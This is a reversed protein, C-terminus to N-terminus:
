PSERLAAKQIKGAPTLPLEDRFVIQRPVKYDALHAACWQRVQAEDLASGARRVIYYRGIEGMVPDPVGIGAVMVVDPHRAIHGEIEAPYVNFGGQIYMDKARGKLEIVGRDNVRGLDGTKLWGDAFANSAESAAGVYGPIVGAGSFCLEGIEGVPLDAGTDPAIVKVRANGIPRGITHLRDNDSADWPTMVIAGSTESLGYLNMLTAAPCRRELQSLLAADVNAGGIYIIRVTSLDLDLGESHMLLLTMMTPVGGLLTPPYRRMRELVPKAKFEAILDTRGGSLLMSLVGCTIGGVHNLPVPIQLLDSPGLRMHEAQASASALMSAHTLGAGKPRGTTGSTYIVMATADPSTQQGLMAVRPDPEAALLESFATHPLRSIKAAPIDEGSTADACELTILHRLSPCDPAIRDLMAAFETGEYHPLVAIAKIHSDQVMYALEADRYRLSMGVVTVGIRTAAFFLQIWEVQNLALIGIRDGPGIDLTLLGAALRRSSADLAAYSLVSDGHILFDADGRTAAATQLAHPLTVQM